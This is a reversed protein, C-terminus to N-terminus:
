ELGEVTVTYKGVNFRGVGTISANFKGNKAQSFNTKGGITVIILGNYDEGYETKNVNGTVYVTDTSRYEINKVTVNYIEITRKNISINNKFIFEKFTYNENNVAEVISVTYNGAKYDAIDDINVIFEGNIVDINNYKRNGITVNIKGNYKPGAYTSIIGYAKILSYDGYTINIEKFSGSVNSKYVTLKNVFNFANQKFTYNENGSADRVTVTYNGARFSKINDVKVQFKGDVVSVYDYKYDGITVNVKGSWNVGFGDNIVSGNIDILDDMGYVVRTDDVDVTVNDKVVYVMDDFTQSFIDEGNYVMVLLQYNNVPLVGLNLNLSFSGDDSLMTSNIASIDPYSIAVTVKHSKADAETTINGRVNVSLDKGYIATKEVSINNITIGEDSSKLVNSDAESSDINEDYSKVAQEDVTDETVKILDSNSDAEVVDAGNEAALTESISCANDNDSANVSGIIVIMMFISLLLLMQLKKINRM